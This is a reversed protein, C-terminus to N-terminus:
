VELVHGKGALTSFPHRKEGEPTSSQAPPGRFFTHSADCSQTVVWVVQPLGTGRHAETDWTYVFHTPQLVMLPEEPLLM